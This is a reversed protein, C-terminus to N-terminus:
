ASNVYATTSVHDFSVVVAKAQSAIEADKWRLINSLDQYMTGISERTIRALESVLPPSLNLIVHHRLILTLVNVEYNKLSYNNCSVSKLCRPNM